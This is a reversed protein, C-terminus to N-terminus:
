VPDYCIRGPKCEEPTAVAGDPGLINQTHVCWFHGSKGSPVTPDSQAQIYMEKARLCRCPSTAIGANQTPEPM